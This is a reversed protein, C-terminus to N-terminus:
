YQCLTDGPMDLRQRSHRLMDEQFNVSSMITRSIGANRPNIVHTM